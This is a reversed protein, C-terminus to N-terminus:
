QSYLLALHTVLMFLFSLKIVLIRDSFSAYQFVHNWFGIGEFTCTISEVM